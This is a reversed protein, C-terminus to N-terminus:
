DCNSQYEREEARSIYDSCSHNDGKYVDVKKCVSCIQITSNFPRLKRPEVCIPRIVTGSRRWKRPM